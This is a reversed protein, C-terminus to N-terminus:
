VVDRWVIKIFKILKEAHVPFETCDRSHNVQYITPNQGGAYLRINQM